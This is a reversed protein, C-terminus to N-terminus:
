LLSGHVEQVRQHVSPRRAESSNSLSDEWFTSYARAEEADKWDQVEADKLLGM